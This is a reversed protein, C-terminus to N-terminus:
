QHGARSVKRRVVAAAPARLPHPQNVAADPASSCATRHGVPAREDPARGQQRPLQELHGRKSSQWPQTLSIAPVCMQPANSAARIASHTGTQAITFKPLELLTTRNSTRQM